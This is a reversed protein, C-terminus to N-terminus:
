LSAPTVSRPRRSVNDTAIAAVSAGAPQPLETLPGTPAAPARGAGDPVSTM